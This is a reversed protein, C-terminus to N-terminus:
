ARGGLVEPSLKLADFVGGGARNVRAVTAKGRINIGPIM